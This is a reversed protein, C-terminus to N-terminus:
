VLYSETENIAEKLSKYSVGFDVLNPDLVRYIPPQEKLYMEVTYGNRQLLKDPTGQPKPESNFIRTDEEEVLLGKVASVSNEYNTLNQGLEKLEKGLVWLFLGFALPILIPSVIALLILWIPLTLIFLLIIIVNM